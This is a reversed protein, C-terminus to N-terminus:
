SLIFVIGGLVNGNQLPLCVRHEDSDSDIIEGQSTQEAGEFLDSGSPSRSWDNEDECAKVVRIRLLLM